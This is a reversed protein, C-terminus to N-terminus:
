GLQGGLELVAIMEKGDYEGTEVFDFSRYFERAVCKEPEYSMWCYDARGCPWTRIFELALKVAARGYGRGQYRSMDM